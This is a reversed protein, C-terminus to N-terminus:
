NGGVPMMQCKLNPIPLSSSSSLFKILLFHIQVFSHANAWTTEFLSLSVNIVLNPSPRIPMQGPGKLHADAWTTELM